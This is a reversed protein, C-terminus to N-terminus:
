HDSSMVIGRTGFNLSDLFVVKGIRLHNKFFKSVISSPIYLIAVWVLSPIIKRKQSLGGRFDAIALTQLHNKFSNM